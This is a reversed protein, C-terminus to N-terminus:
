RGASQGGDVHLTEGTIFDSAELFLIANVIDSIQGLRKLPISGILGSYTEPANSPTQTPAPSVANVRIGREAYEIALSRTASAVGGKTLAALVSVEKSNAYEAVTATLNVVHGGGHALMESIARQTMFFFGTLNVGVVLEYDKATYEAFPKSLFVGANNVLTHLGGFHDRAAKVIRDATAPRTIDGEVVVVGPDDPQEMSRANAVVAWGLARYGAVIGAGIGQSGGTVVVVKQANANM